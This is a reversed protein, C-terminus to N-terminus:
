TISWAGPFMTSFVALAIADIFITGYATAWHIQARGGDFPNEFVQRLFRGLLVAKVSIPLFIVAAVIHALVLIGLEELPSKQLFSPWPATVAAIGARIGVSQTLCLWVLTILFSAFLLGLIQVVSVLRRGINM